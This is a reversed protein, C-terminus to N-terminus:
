HCKPGTINKIINGSFGTSDACIYNDASLSASIAFAKIDDFCTASSKSKKIKDIATKFTNDQCVNKYGINEQQFKVYYLEASVRTGSIINKILIEDPFSETSVEKSYECSGSGMGTSSSYNDKAFNAILETLYNISLSCKIINGITNRVSENTKTLWQQKEENTLTIYVSKTKYETTYDATSNIVKIIFGCNNVSNFGTLTMKIKDTRNFVSEDVIQDQEVIAPSCTKIANMFCTMDKGCDIEDTKTAGINNEVVPTATQTQIEELNTQNQTLEGAKTTNSKILDKIIPLDNRFYYGSAGLALIFLIGAILFIPKKNLNNKKNIIPESSIVSVPSIIPSPNIVTPTNLSDFGENIDTPTWRNAILDSTIKEKTVGQQLSQKIFDILQQNIM